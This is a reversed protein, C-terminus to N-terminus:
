NVKIVKGDAIRERVDVHTKTDLGCRHQVCQIAFNMAAQPDPAHIGQITVKVDVDYTGLTAIRLGNGQTM